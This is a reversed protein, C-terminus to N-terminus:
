KSERPLLIHDERALADRWVDDDVRVGDGGSHGNTVQNLAELALDTSFYHLSNKDVAAVM